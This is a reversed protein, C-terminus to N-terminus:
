EKSVNPQNARHKAVLKQVLGMHEPYPQNIDFDWVYRPLKVGEINIAHVSQGMIEAWPIASMGLSANERWLDAGPSTATEPFAPIGMTYHINGESLDVEQYGILQNWKPELGGVEEEAVWDLGHLSIDTQQIFEPILKKHSPHACNFLMFSTQEYEELSRVVSVAIDDNIQQELETIDSALLMDADMFVAPGKFDCLWPVLFRSFTFPTLGRRTIPLTRLVLPSVLVPKSATEFISTALTTFSIRQREDFGVFVRLM